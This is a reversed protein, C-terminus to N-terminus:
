RFPGQGHPWDCPSPRRERPPAPVPPPKPPEPDPPPPPDPDAVEPEAYAYQPYLLPAHQESERQNEETPGLKPGEPIEEGPGLLFLIIWWPVAVSPVPFPIPLPSFPLLDDWPIRPVWWDLRACRPCTASSVEFVPAGNAIKKYARLQGKQWKDGDFKFEYVAEVNGFEPPADKDKAVVVDPRASGAPPDRDGRPLPLPNGHGDDQNRSYLPSHILSPPPGLDYSPEVWIGRYKPDWAYGGWRSNALYRAVCRGRGGRDCKCLLYCMILFLVPLEFLNQIEAPSIANAADLAGLNHMMADYARPLPEGEVTVDESYDIFQAGGRNVGSLVGGDAGPEDGYSTGFISSAKMLAYGDAFVSRATDEADRSFAANLLPIPVGLALCVDVFALSFGDSGRHVVTRDDASVTVPM